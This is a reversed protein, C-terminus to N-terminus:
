GMFERPDGKVIAKARRAFAISRDQKYPFRHENGISNFLNRTYLLLKQPTLDYYTNEKRQQHINLDNDFQNDFDFPINRGHILVFTITLILGFLCSNIHM